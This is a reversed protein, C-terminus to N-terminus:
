CFFMKLETMAKVTTRRCWSLHTTKRLINRMPAINYPNRATMKPTLKNLVHFVTLVVKIRYIERLKTGFISTKLLIVTNKTLFSYVGPLRRDFVMQM